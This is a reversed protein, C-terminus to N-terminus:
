HNAVCKHSDTAIARAVARAAARGVFRYTYRRSPVPEPWLAATGVLFPRLCSLLTSFLQLANSFSGHLPDGPRAVPGSLFNFSAPATTRNVTLDFLRVAEGDPGSQCRRGFSQM